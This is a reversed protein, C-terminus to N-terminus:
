PGGTFGKGVCDPTSVPGTCHAGFGGGQSGGGGSFTFTPSTGENSNTLRGGSGGTLGTGATRNSQGGQATCNTVGSNLPAPCPGTEGFNVRAFAPVAALIMMAAMVLAVTLVMLIRKM